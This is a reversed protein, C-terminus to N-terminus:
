AFAREEGPGELNSVCRRVAGPPAAGRGCGARHHWCRVCKPDAARACRSGCARARRHEVAPVAEPPAASGPTCTPTRPSSCSACSRASRPSARTSRRRATSMSEADLPAGIAGRTACSRWSARWMPACGRHAGALRHADAPVAPLEHWTRLFVSEPRAAPCIAGRDGRGHVVPDARALAGHERRHPVDGDAGFPARCRAGAHHVPPGQRRGPLPRGPGRHLLQAGEPLDPPLRLERYAEVIEAQLARTRALAWRDLAVLESRRWRMPARISATCTASCSACRHQAHAPLLGGHAQPDRGLREDRQRLRDGRGVAAARRRRPTNMVKQPAIVNGLSKSMKRGKEDVTFGHTLVGRYPAREYLAESMLLSSHFWGRHQDSGELYLDVPRASDGPARPRRVRVLAGLGGVRGHRRHGERLARGGRGLLEARMSRSGPM